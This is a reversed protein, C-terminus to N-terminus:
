AKHIHFIRAGDQILDFIDKGGKKSIKVKFREVTNEGINHSKKVTLIGPVGATLCLVVVQLMGGVGEQGHCAENMASYEFSFVKGSLVYYKPQHACQHVIGSIDSAKIVVSNRVGVLNKSVDPAADGEHVSIPGIM